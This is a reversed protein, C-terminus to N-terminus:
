HFFLEIKQPKFSPNEMSAEPNTQKKFTEGQTLVTTCQLTDETNQQKHGNANESQSGGKM